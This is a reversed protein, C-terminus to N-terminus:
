LKQMAAAELFFCALSFSAGDDWHSIVRKPLMWIDRQFEVFLVLNVKTLKTRITRIPCKLIKLPKLSFTSKTYVEPQRPNMSYVSWVETLNNNNNSNYSRSNPPVSWYTFRTKALFHGLYSTDTVHFNFMIEILHDM